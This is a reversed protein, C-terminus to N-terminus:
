ITWRLKNIMTNKLIYVYICMYICIHMERNDGNDRNGQTSHNSDPVFKLDTFNGCDIEYDCDTKV